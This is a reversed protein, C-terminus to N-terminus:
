ECGPFGPSKSTRGHFTIFLRYSRKCMRNKDRSEARQMVAMRQLLPGHGRCNLLAEIVPM